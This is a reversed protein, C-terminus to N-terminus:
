ALMTDTCLLTNIRTKEIDQPIKLYTPVPGIKNEYAFILTKIRFVPLWHSPCLFPTIYSFM